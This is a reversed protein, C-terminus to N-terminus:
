YKYSLSIFVTRPAGVTYTTEPKVNIESASFTSIYAEDLLNTCALSLSLTHKEDIKFEKNVSLDVVYHSDVSYQHEVDVYRKGLYRVIPVITYGGLEYEAALNAYFLPVDPLQNDKSAIFAGASSEIDTTFAYHNYTAAGKVFLNSLLQYGASLEIGYSEAEATNQQYTYDLVPDYFTGGVNKVKSYFLTATVSFDSGEYTYGIDVNDSEEPKLDSWMKQLLAEDEGIASYYKLMSGGFGYSPTNYNRGYSAKLYASENLYHIIGINPLFIKHTQSPLIFDVDSVQSLAREYSVDGIGATDYSVLEPAGMWLYKLGANLITREFRQEYTLYPANFTHNENVKIIREWKIFDMTAADRLKRSTPPGPPEDEQYWYGVKIKANDFTHAYELVAGYTDHDVLWDIVKTGSGSYRYGKDNLFYPRFTITDEQSLPVKLKGLLTYTQFDQKNRDYYRSDQAPDGTLETNYDYKRYRSLDKSQEYTLGRYNHKKEDNYITYVEWEIEQNSSSAVGAAFNKRNPSEGKGKFKDAKTLSGSVFFKASDAIEGSDVRLYTKRFDYSGLAQKFETSFTSSPKQMKMDVMGNDSGYGFGSDAKIPGKELTVSQVNEIDVMTSLGGGPGIGKLPLGELTEGINRDGKGRIKHSIDMGFPDKTRIDVGAELSIAKYPNLLEASSTVEIEKADVVSGTGISSEEQVEAEVNVEDVDYAKPEAYLVTCLLSSTLLSLVIRRKEM